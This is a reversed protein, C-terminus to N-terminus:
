GMHILPNRGKIQWKPTFTLNYTKGIERFEKKLYARAGSM